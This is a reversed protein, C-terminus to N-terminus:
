VLTDANKQMGTIVKLYVHAEPDVIKETKAADMFHSAPGSSERWQLLPRKTHSEPVQCYLDHDFDAKDHVKGDHIHVTPFFLKSPDAQPFDFAMPHIKKHGEKLKFVAFGFKKYQPLAEWTGPPLRFREDLRAFDAVSPVFSAEFSGVQVVEIVTGVGGAASKSLSHGRSEAKPQPFGKKMDTFFEPYKELNIFKVADDPSKAPVPIPLVMALDEKADITMSYVVYQRGKSSPRAFVKTQSVHEVPRSFCCM